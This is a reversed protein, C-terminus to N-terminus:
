APVGGGQKFGLFLALAILALNTSARSYGEAGVILPGTFATVLAMVFALIALAVCAKALSDM